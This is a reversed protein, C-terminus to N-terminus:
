HHRYSMVEIMRTLEIMRTMLSSPLEDDTIVTAFVTLFSCLQALRALLFGVIGM